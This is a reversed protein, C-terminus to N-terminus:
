VFGLFFFIELKKNGKIKKFNRQPSQERKGCLCNKNKYRYLSKAKQWGMHPMWHLHSGELWEVCVYM